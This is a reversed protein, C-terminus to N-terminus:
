RAGPRDCAFAAAKAQSVNFVKHFLGAPLNRKVIARISLSM